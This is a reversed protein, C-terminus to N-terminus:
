FNVCLVFILSFLSKGSIMFATRIERIKTKDGVAASEM